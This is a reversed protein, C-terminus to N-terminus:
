IWRDRIEASDDGLIIDSTVGKELYLRSPAVRQTYAASRM